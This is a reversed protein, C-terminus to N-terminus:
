QLLSSYGSDFYWKLTKYYTNLDERDKIPIYSSLGCYSKIKYEKMFEETHAKYLVVNGLQNTLQRKNADPLLKDIFDKFDFTYQEVYNDLQQVTTRDFSNIDFSHETILQKTTNALAELEKLNIVSITASQYIGSLQMYYNMYKEAVKKLDPTNVILDPIILDYPFGVYLTETSSAIMYNTKDKLEYAVEISGMLCADFLIYDFKIPLAEALDTLNMQTGNDEGFSRTTCGAPLWSTSHSWLVLGFNDSPYLNIIDSLVKRMQVTAASNLEEYEKVITESNAGIKIIVPPEDLLDLFVILNNEEQSPFASRMQDINRLANDSLGNDAAMYVIVTRKTAKSESKECSVGLLSMMIICLIINAKRISKTRKKSGSRNEM